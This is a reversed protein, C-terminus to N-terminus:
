RRQRLRGARRAPHGSRLHPRRPRGGHPPPNEHQLPRGQAVRDQDGHQSRGARRDPGASPDGAGAHPPHHPHGRRGDVRHRAPEEAVSFGPLLAGNLLASEARIGPELAPSFTVRVPETGGSTVAVSWSGESRTITFDYRRAAVAVNALEVTDWDAPFRPSLTVLGNLADVELGALGRLMPLVYGTTSFGQHHYAEGLKQNMEGSFVEPMVGAGNDFAHRLVGRLVPHASLAYGYRFQATNFFSGIFPWVAGYNYNTPEFLESSRSLSRVGWDTCLDAGNFAELSRGTRDANFLGFMMGVGPWPTKENVREKKETAGYSYFGTRDNWFVKELAPMAKALQADAKTKMEADGAIGAMMATERIGQVWIACTYVDSYIGVLKGFELAGLGSGKLDMLGDNDSDKGVCWEYAQKVSNWSDRIFAVDGSTRAYDGMAVLYWPSTDAHNYGYHYDNWWDVLGDSQSLEHSMKGVDRNPRDPNARIPFEEQRQWKQTFALADRVTQTAGYSDLALSNIFADGGFFWAFGPRAGGGSVGYGAVMGYGLNPNRVMLNDLAVKGWELALNMEPDPTTMRVTNARLKKYYDVNERYYKEANKWLDNYVAKVSDFKVDDGGAIVIPIYRGDAEGPGVDIRFQIPNDAFMHAPPAAMQKAAPSGCLFVGRWKAESIVYGSPDDNWYSFQGGIGAPWMPQMVPIFGAVIALPSTTHVDLLIVAGPRDRPVFVIERVSFSEHTYTFVTAEPTVTVTRVIDAALIPQTSSGLLFSLGFNRLPKWPWIWMEFSGDESGMLGAQLGIKDFYQTPQALRNIAIPSEALPFAAITSKALGSGKTQPLATVLCLGLLILLHITRKM